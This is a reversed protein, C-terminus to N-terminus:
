GGPAHHYEHHLVVVLIWPDCVAHRVGWEDDLGPLNIDIRSPGPIGLEPADLYRAAFSDFGGQTLSEITVNEGASDTPPPFGAGALQAMAQAISDDPWCPLGSQASATPVAVTFASLVAFLALAALALRTGVKEKTM